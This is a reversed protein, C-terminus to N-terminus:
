EYQEGANQKQISTRYKNAVLFSSVYLDNMSYCYFYETLASELSDIVEVCRIEYAMKRISNNTATFRELLVNSTV